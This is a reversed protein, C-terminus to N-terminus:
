EILFRGQSWRNEVTLTVTEALAAVDHAEYAAVFKAEQASYMYPQAVQTYVERRDGPVWPVGTGEHHKELDLWAAADPDVDDPDIVTLALTGAPTWDIRTWPYADLFSQIVEAASEESQDSGFRVASEYLHTDFFTAAADWSTADIIAHAGRWGALPADRYVYEELIARLQTVPNTVADGSYLGNEDAGECDFAVIVGEDPQYGEDIEIITLSSQGFVKRVIRWWSTGSQPVGDYHIRRIDVMHGVSALWWYGADKDYRINVAPVMGRATIRYADHIGFVLPMHTGFVTGDISASGWETRKIIAAPVPTRLVADDTKLLLRTVLGDREWDEVVGRFIPEWDDTSLGPTVWDMAAVSGRPDYTELMRVLSGDTDVVTVTTQAALLSASEVGAGYEIADWGGPAVIGTVHGAATERDASAYIGTGLSYGRAVWTVRLVPFPAAGRTVAEILAADM